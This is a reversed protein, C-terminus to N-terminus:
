RFLNSSDHWRYMYLRRFGLAKFNRYISGIWDFVVKEMLYKTNDPIKKRRMKAEIEQIYRFLSSFTKEVFIKNFQRSTFSPKEFHQKFEAFNDQKTKGTMKM